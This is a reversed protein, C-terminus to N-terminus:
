LRYPVEYQHSITVTAKNRVTQSINKGMYQQNFIAM